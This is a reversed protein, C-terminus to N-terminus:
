ELTAITDIKSENILWAVESISVAISHNDLREYYDGHDIAAFGTVMGALQLDGDECLFLGGGSQGFNVSATTHIDGDKYESFRGPNAVKEGGLPYGVAYYTSTISLTDAAIPAPDINSTDVTLVAIDKEPYVMLVTAQHNYGHIEAYVIDLDDIVHAATIILNKDIIVGSAITDEGTIRIVTELLQNDKQMCIEAHAPMLILCILAIILYKCNLM